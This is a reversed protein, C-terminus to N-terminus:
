PVHAQGPLGDDRGDDRRMPRGDVVALGLDGSSQLDGSRSGEGVARRSTEAGLTRGFGEVDDRLSANDPGSAEDYRDEAAADVQLADDAPPEVLPTGGDLRQVAEDYGSATPDDISSMPRDGAQRAVADFDAHHGVGTDVADFRALVDELERIRAADGDTVEAAVMARGAVLGEEILRAARRPLGRGVLAGFVGGVTGSATGGVAAAFPGLGLVPGVGPITFVIAGAIAGGVGGMSAGLAMREARANRVGQQLESDADNAKVIGAAGAQRPAAFSIRARPVGARALADIAALAAASTRYIAVITKM